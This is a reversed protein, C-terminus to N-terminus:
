PSNRGSSTGATGREPEVGISVSWAAVNASGFHYNLDDAAPEVAVLADGLVTVHANAQRALTVLEALPRAPMDPVDHLTCDHVALGRRDFGRQGRELM